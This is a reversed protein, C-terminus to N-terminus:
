LSFKQRIVLWLVAAAILDTGAVFLRVPLPIGTVFGGVVIAGIVLAAIAVWLIRRQTTNTEEPSSPPTPELDMVFTPVTALLVSSGFVM